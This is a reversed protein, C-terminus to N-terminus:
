LGKALGGQSGTARLVSGRGGCGCGADTVIAIRGQQPTPRNSDMFSNRGFPSAFYKECRPQVSIQGVPQKKAFGRGAGAISRCKCDVSISKMAALVRLATALPLPACVPMSWITADSGRAYYTPHTSSAFGMMEMLHLLHTDSREVWGQILTAVRKSVPPARTHPLVTHPRIAAPSLDKEKAPRVSGTPEAVNRFKGLV